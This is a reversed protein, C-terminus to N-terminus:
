WSIILSVKNNYSCYAKYGFKKLIAIMEIIVKSFDEDNINSIETTYEGNEAVELIQPMIFNEVFYEAVSLRYEKRLNETELAIAHMENANKM